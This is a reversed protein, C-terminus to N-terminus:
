VCRNSCISVISNEVQSKPAMLPPRSFTPFAFGDVNSDRICLRGAVLCLNGSATSSWLFLTQGWLVLLLLLPGHLFPWCQGWSSSCCSPLPPKHSWESFDHYCNAIYTGQILKYKLEMSKFDIMPLPLSGLLSVPCHDYLLALNLFIMKRAM